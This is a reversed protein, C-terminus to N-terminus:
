SGHHSSRRKNKIKQSKVFNQGTNIESMSISTKMKLTQNKFINEMDRSIVNLIEEVKKSM